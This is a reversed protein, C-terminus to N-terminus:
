QYVEQPKTTNQKLKFLTVLLFYLCGSGALFGVFIRCAHNSLEHRWSEIVVDAILPIFLLFSSGLTTRFQVRLVRPSKLILLSVSLFGIFIGFCHSCLGFNSNAYWLCRSPMQHCINRLFSYIDTSIELMWTETLPALFSMFLFFSSLIATITPLLYFRKPPNM